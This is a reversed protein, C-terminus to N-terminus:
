DRTAGSIKPTTDLTFDCCTHGDNWHLPTPRNNGQTWVEQGCDNCVWKPMIVGGMNNRCNDNRNPVSICSDNNDNTSQNYLGNRIAHSEGWYKSIREKGLSISNVVVHVNRLHAFRM